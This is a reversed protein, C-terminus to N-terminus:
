YLLCNHLFFICNHQGRTCAVVTNAKNVIRIDYLLELIKVTNEEYFCKM